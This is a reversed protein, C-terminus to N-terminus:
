KIYAVISVILSVVAIIISVTMKWSTSKEHRIIREDREIERKRQEAKENELKQEKAQEIAQAMKAIRSHQEGARLASLASHVDINKFNEPNWSM